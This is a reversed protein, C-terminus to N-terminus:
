MEDPNSFFEYVVDQFRDPLKRLRPSICKMVYNQIIEDSEWTDKTSKNVAYFYGSIEFWLCQRALDEADRVKEISLISRDKKDSADLVTLLGMKKTEVVEFSDSQELYDSFIELVDEITINESKM